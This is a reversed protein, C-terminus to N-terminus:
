GKSWKSGSAQKLVEKYVAITQESIYHWSYIKNIKAKAKKIINKAKDQNMLVELVNDAISNPNGAYTKMGDVGHEIINNLGGVDSTVVPVESAMAELAVIGFPEYLSPFVAVDICKYLRILDEDGIHGTFIVKHAFQSARLRFEELQPGTGVLVFKIDPYYRIIKPMADILIHVGKQAVMRGVFFIIKEKDQAFQRRFELDKKYKDFKSSDIGNPIVNIKDSPLQFIQEIESRMNESNVIVRWSEYTLWWEINHIYRQTDNFIGKNRGHETAHITSVLPINYSHKLVRASFAVIWDHAHIIDFDGIEKILKNGQEILTFNMLVVWDIFNTTNIEQYTRVRHVFVNGKKEFEEQGQEWCTIIHIENSAKGLEESLGEVVRAIGGIIRPPYEWTLM